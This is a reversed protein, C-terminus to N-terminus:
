APPLSFNNNTIQCPNQADNKRQRSYGFAGVETVTDEALPGASEMLVLGFTDLAVLGM